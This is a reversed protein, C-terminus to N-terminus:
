SPNREVAVAADISPISRAHTWYFAALIGLQSVVFGGACGLTLPLSIRILIVTAIGIITFTVLLGIQMVMLAQAVSGSTAAIEVRKSLIWGNLLALGAGVVIGSGVPHYGAVYAAAGALAVVGPILPNVRGFSSVSPANLRTM